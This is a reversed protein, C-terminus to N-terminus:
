NQMVGELQHLAAAMAAGDGKELGDFLGIWSARGPGFAASAALFHRTGTVTWKPDKVGEAKPLLAKASLEAGAKKGAGWQCALNLTDRVLLDRASSGAEPIADAEQICGAFDSMTLRAEELDLRAATSTDVKIRREDLAVAQDFRFLEDHDIHSLRKLTGLDTPYVGLYAEDAAAADKLDGKLEYARGLYFQADLWRKPLASKTYVEISQNLAKVAQDAKASAEDGTARQGQRLLAIGLSEETRAWDLPLDAKTEVELAHNYAEVAQDLLAASQAGELTDAETREANGLNFETRAWQQPLDAKTQVEQSMKFAQVSQNFLETAKDGTAKEAQDRLLLGLNNQTAAWYQPLNDRTLVELASKYAQAAKELLANAKDGSAKDAQNVWTIGLNNETMAWDQPFSAKTRVTLVNQYAEVAESLLLNAKDGEAEEGESELATAINHQVSAWEKPASAKTFVEAASKFAQIARDYLEYAQDGLVQDGRVVLANGLSDQTGAWAKPDDSKSMMELAKQFDKVAQDSLAPAQDGTSRAAEERLVTGESDLLSAVSQKEKVPDYEQSLSQFEQLSQTLLLHSEAAGTVAAEQQQASAVQWRANLWTDRLAADDPFSSHEETAEDRAQELIQTAQHYQSNLQYTNAAQVATAMSDNLDKRRGELYKEKEDKLAQRKANFAQEFTQAAVGYNQLALEALGKQELTAQAKQGEIDEAWEKVKADVQAPDFGNSKAWETLPATLDAKQKNAQDLQGKMQQNQQQLTQAKLSLRRLTAEIQAPGLLAASGKPLLSITVTVPLGPLQGDAPQFIVLDTSGTVEIRLDGRQAAEPSVLLLAQGARNTADRADIVKESGAVFSLSVRVGQVPQAPDDHANVV